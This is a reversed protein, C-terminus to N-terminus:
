QTGTDRWHMVIDGVSKEQIETAGTTQREGRQSNKTEEPPLEEAGWGEGGGSWALNEWSGVEAEGGPGSKELAACQRWPKM